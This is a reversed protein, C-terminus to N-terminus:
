ICCDVAQRELTSGSAKIVMAVVTFKKLCAFNSTGVATLIFNIINDRTHTVISPTQIPLISKNAV